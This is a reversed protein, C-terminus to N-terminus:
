VARRFHRAQDVGRADLRCEDAFQRRLKGRQDAGVDIHLFQGDGRQHVFIALMKIVGRHHVRVSRGFEVEVLDPVEDVVQEGRMALPYRLPCPRVPLHPGRLQSTFDAVREPGTDLSEAHCDAVAVTGSYRVDVHGRRSSATASAAALSKDGLAGLIPSPSRWAALLNM